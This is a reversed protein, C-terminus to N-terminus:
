TNHLLDYPTLVGHTDNSKNATLGVRLTYYTTYREKQSFIILSM